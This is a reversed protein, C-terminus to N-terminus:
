CVLCLRGPVRTPGLHRPHDMMEKGQGKERGKVYSFVSGQAKKLFIQPAVLDIKETPVKRILLVKKVGFEAM